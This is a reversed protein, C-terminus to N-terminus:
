PDFYNHAVIPIIIYFVIFMFVFALASFVFSLNSTNYILALLIMYLIGILSFATGFIHLLMVIIRKANASIHTMTFSRTITRKLVSLFSGREM